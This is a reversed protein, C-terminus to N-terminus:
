PPREALLWLAEPAFIWRAIWYLVLGVLLLASLATRRELGELGHVLPRRLSEPLLSAVALVLWAVLLVPSFAHLTLAAHWQGALLELTARSLGCGPCPLGIGLLLPCQWGPLGVATLGLHLGAIGTLLFGLVRNGLLSAFPTRATGSRAETLVPSVGDAADVGAGM